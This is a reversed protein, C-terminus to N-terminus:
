SFQTNNKKRADLQKCLMTTIYTQKYSFERLYDDLQDVFGRAIWYYIDM